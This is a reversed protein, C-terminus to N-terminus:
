IMNSKDSNPIVLTALSGSQRNAILNIRDLCESGLEECSDTGASVLRGCTNGKRQNRNAITRRLTTRHAPALGALKETRVVQEGSVVGLRTAIRTGVDGAFRGM